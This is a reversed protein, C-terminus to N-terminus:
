PCDRPEFSDVVWLPDLRLSVVTLVPLRPRDPYWMPASSSVPPFPHPKLMSRSPTFYFVSHFPPGSQRECVSFRSPGVEGTVWGVVGRHLTKGRGGVVGENSTGLAGKRDFLRPDELVSRNDRAHFRPGRPGKPGPPRGPQGPVERMRRSKEGSVTLVPPKARHPQPTHPLSSVHSFHPIPLM